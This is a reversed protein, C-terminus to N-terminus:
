FLWWLLANIGALASVVNITRRLRALIPLIQYEVLVRDRAQVEPPKDWWDGDHAGTEEYTIRARNLRDYIYSWGLYLRGVVLLLPVWAGAAGALLFDGFAREPRFSWAAIPGSLLWSGVWIACLIGNYRRSEVTAWRFFSSARLEEYENIPLQEPPIM